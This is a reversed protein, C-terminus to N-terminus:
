NQNSNQLQQPTFPLQPSNAGPQQQQAAKAADTGKPQVLDARSVRLADVNKAPIVYYWAGLRDSLEKAKERGAEVKDQFAKLDQEYTKLDAEYQKEALEFKELPSLSPEGPRPARLPANPDVPGPDEPPEPRTPGPGLADPDFMVRVFLYRSQQKEADSESSESASNEDTEESDGSEPSDAQPESDDESASASKGFEIERLDGTFVNGFHLEYVLGENTTAYFSGEQAVVGLDNEGRPVLFYGRSALDDRINAIM